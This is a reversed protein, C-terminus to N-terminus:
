SFLTSLGIMEPESAVIIHVPIDAVYNSLRGKDQFRDTFAEKDLTDGLVDILSGALYIGGRAGTMLAADSATAALWGTCLSVAERARKDGGEALFVISQPSLDGGPLGDIVGLCRWIESLGQLSVARERSVRGFKRVMMELVARERATIAPLDTHGGESPLITSGSLDDTVILASGLGFSAGILLKPQTDDGDHGCIRVTEDPRLLPVAMAICVCDNVLNLRRIKLLDRLWERQIRFPDNPMALGGDQEWGCASVAAGLLPRDTKARLFTDVAQSFDEFTRCPYTTSPEPRHRSRAMTLKVNNNSSVDILLADESM